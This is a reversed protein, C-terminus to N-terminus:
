SKVDALMGSLGTTVGATSVEALGISVVGFGALAIAVSKGVLWRLAPVIEYM